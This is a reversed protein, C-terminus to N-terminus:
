WVVPQLAVLFSNTIFNQLFTKFNRFIYLFVETTSNKTAWALSQFINTQRWAVLDVLFTHTWFKKEVNM